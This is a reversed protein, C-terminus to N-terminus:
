RVFEDATDGMKFASKNQRQIGPFPTNVMGFLYPLEQYGVWRSIRLRRRSLDRLRTM